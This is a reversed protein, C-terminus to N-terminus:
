RMEGVRPVYRVYCQNMQDGLSRLERRAEEADEGSFIIKHNLILVLQGSYKRKVEELNQYFWDMNRWYEWADVWPKEDILLNKVGDSIEPNGRIGEIAGEIFERRMLIDEAEKLIGM